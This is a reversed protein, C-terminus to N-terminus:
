GCNRGQIELYDLLLESCHQNLFRVGVDLRRGISLLARHTRNGRM